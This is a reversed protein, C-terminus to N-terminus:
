IGHGWSLARLRHHFCSRWSLRLRNSNLRYNFRHSHRAFGRGFWHDDFRRRCRGIGLNAHHRVLRRSDFCRRRITIRSSDSRRSLGLHFFDPTWTPATLWALVAATMLPPLRLSLLGTLRPLRRSTLPGLTVVLVPM